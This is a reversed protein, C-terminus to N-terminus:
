QKSTIIVGNFTAADNPSYHVTAVWSFVDGNSAKQGGSVAGDWKLRDKDTGKFVVTNSRDRIEIEYRISADELAIPLWTDNQGDNNPSFSNAALLNYDENEVHVISQKSLCGNTGHALLEIMYEGKKNFAFNISSQTAVNKGNVKWNINQIQADSLANFEYNPRYYDSQVALKEINLDPTPNVVIPYNNTLTTYLEGKANYIMVEINYFGSEILNKSAVTKNFETGDSLVIKAKDGKNLKLVEITITEGSCFINKNVKLEPKQLQAESKNPEAAQKAIIPTSNSNQNSTNSNQHAVKIPTETAVIRKEPIIQANTEASNTIENESKETVESKNKQENTEVSGEISNEKPVSVTLEYTPVKETEESATFSYVIGASVLIAAAITMLLKSATWSTKQSASTSALKKNFKEWEIEAFPEELSELKQKIIEDFNSNM